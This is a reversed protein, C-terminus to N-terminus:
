WFVQPDTFLLPASFQMPLLSYFCFSHHTYILKNIEVVKTFAATNEAMISILTVLTENDNEAQDPFQSFYFQNCLDYSSSFHCWATSGASHLNNLPLVIYVWFMFIIFFQIIYKIIPLPHLLMNYLIMVVHTNPSM